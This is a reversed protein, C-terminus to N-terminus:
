KKKANTDDLTSIVERIRMIVAHIEADKKQYISDYATRLAMNKFLGFDKGFMEIIDHTITWAADKDNM